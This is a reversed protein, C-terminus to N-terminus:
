LCLVVEMALSPDRLMLWCNWSSNRWWLNLRCFTSLLDLSSRYLFHLKRLVLKLVRNLWRLNRFPHKQSVLELKRCPTSASRQVGLLFSFLYDFALCRKCFSSVSTQLSLKTRNLLSLCLYWPQILCSIGLKSIRLRVVPALSSLHCTKHKTQRHTFPVWFHDSFVM